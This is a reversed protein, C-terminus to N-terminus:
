YGSPNAYLKARSRVEVIDQLLTTLGRHDNDISTYSIVRVKYRELYERVESTPVNPALWCVERSVTVGAKAAELAAKVHPDNLSHGIVVVRNMQFISTMRTRWYNWEPANSLANYQSSTM